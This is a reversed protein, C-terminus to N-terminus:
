LRSRWWFREVRESSGDKWLRDERQSVLKVSELIGGLDERDQSMEQIYLKVQNPTGDQHLVGPAVPFHDPDTNMWMDRVPRVFSGQYLWGVDSIWRGIHRGNIFVEAFLDEGKLELVTPAFFREPNPLEDTM